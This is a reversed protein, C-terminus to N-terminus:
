LNVEYRDDSLIPNQYNVLGGIITFIDDIYPILIWQVKSRVIDWLKMRQIAREVHVRAAAIKNTLLVDDRPMQKAKLKPPIILQIHNELCETEISFGKDVMVADRTPDLKDLIGSQVFIAKDSARGGYVDSLFIILGSASIGILIKLTECSKYFSYLRLRCKLCRPKEVPIETCDLVVRTKEFGKFCKPMSKLCEEKTPWYIANRLIKALLRVMYYFQSACVNRTIGFFVCLCRFSVNLKLKIFCLVIRNRSNLVFKKIRTNYDEAQIECLNVAEELETLMEFNVGTFAVMDEDSRLLSLITIRRPEHRMHEYGENPEDHELPMDDVVAEEDQMYPEDLELPEDAIVPVNNRVISENRINAESRMSPEDSNQQDNSFSQADDQVPLSQIDLLVCESCNLPLDSEDLEGSNNLEEPESHVGDASASTSPRSLIDQQVSLQQHMRKGSSATHLGRNGDAAPLMINSITLVKKSKLISPHHRKAGGTNNERGAEIITTSSHPDVITPIASDKLKNGAVDRNLGVGNGALWKKKNVKGRVCTHPRM